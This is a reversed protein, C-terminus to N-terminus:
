SFVAQRDSDDGLTLPRSGEKAELYADKTRHNGSGGESRLHGKPSEPVGMKGAGAFGPSTSDTAPLELAAM